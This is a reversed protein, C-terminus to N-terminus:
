RRSYKQYEGEIVIRGLKGLFLSHLFVIENIVAKQPYEQTIRVGSEQFIDTRNIKAGSIPFVPDPEPITIYFHIEEDRFIFQGNLGAVGGGCIDISELSLDLSQYFKVFNM